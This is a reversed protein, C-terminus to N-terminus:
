SAGAGAPSGWGTHRRIDDGRQCGVGGAAEGDVEIALNRPETLAQNYAIWAEAHAATYPHPFGDRLNRWVARNNAHRVLAPQDGPRWPRHVCRVLRLEM